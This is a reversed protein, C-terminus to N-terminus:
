RRNGSQKGRAPASGHGQGEGKPHGQCHRDFWLKQEDNLMLRIQHRARETLKRKSAHLVAIEDILKEVAKGDYQESGTLTRLRAEKENVQDAITKLDKLLAIRIAKIEEKQKDTIGPIQDYNGFPGPIQQHM